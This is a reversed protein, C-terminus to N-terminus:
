ILGFWLCIYATDVADSQLPQHVYLHWHSLGIMYLCRDNKKAELRYILQFSDASLYDNNIINNSRRRVRARAQTYLGFFYFRKIREAAHWLRRESPGDDVRITRRIRAAASPSYKVAERERLYTVLDRSSWRALQPMQGCVTECNARCDSFMFQTFIGQPTKGKIANEM